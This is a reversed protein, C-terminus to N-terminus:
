NKCHNDQKGGLLGHSLDVTRVDVDTCKGLHRIPKADVDHGLFRVEDVGGSQSEVLFTSEEDSGPGLVSLGTRVCGAVIDLNKVVTVFIAYRVLYFGKGFAEVIHLRKGPLPVLKPHGVTWVHGNQAVLVPVVHSVLVFENVRTQAVQTVTQVSKIPCRVTAEVHGLSVAPDLLM